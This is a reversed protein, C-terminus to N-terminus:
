LRFDLAVAEPLYIAEQLVRRSDMSISELEISIGPEFGSVFLEFHPGGRQLLCFYGIGNQRKM